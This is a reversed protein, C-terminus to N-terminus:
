SANEAKFRSLAFYRFFSMVNARLFSLWIEVRSNPGPRNPAIPDQAGASNGSSPILLGPRNAM